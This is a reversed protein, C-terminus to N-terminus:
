QEIFVFTEPFRALETDIIQKTESEELEVLEVSELWFEVNRNRAECAVEVLFIKDPQGIFVPCKIKFSLEANSNLTVKYTDEINGKQDNIKTIEADVKAKFRQLNNIVKEYQDKSAFYLSKFRLHKTLEAVGFIKNTNICLEAILPNKILQGKIDYGGHNEREDYNENTTLSIYRDRYSYCVNSRKEDDQDKRKAIFNGPASITGDIAHRNEYILKETEVTEHKIHLVGDVAQLQNLSLKEDKM